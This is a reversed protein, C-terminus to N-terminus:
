MRIKETALHCDITYKVMKRGNNRYDKFQYSGDLVVPLIEDNAFDHIWVDTSELLHWMRSSEDDTMWGTECSWRRLIESVYNNDQRPLPTSNNAAYYIKRCWRTPETSETVNGEILLSDWGGYANRYYLAYKACDRLTAWVYTSIGASQFPPTASQLNFVATGGTAPISVSTVNVNGSGRNIFLNVSVQSSSTLFLVMMPHFHDNVRATKINGPTTKYSWDPLFTDSSVNTWSSGNTSKAIVFNQPQCCQSLGTSFPTPAGYKMRAACIKNWYITVNGSGTPSVAKGQFFLGGNGFEDQGGSIRYLNGSPISVGTDKWIPYTAM